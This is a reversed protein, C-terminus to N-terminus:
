SLSTWSRYHLTILGVRGYIGVLLSPWTDFVFCFHFGVAQVYPLAVLLLCFSTSLYVQLFPLSTPINNKHSKIQPGIRYGNFYLLFSVNKCSQLVLLKTTDYCWSLSLLFIQIPGLNHMYISYLDKSLGLVLCAVFFFWVAWSFSFSSFLSYFQQGNIPSFLTWLKTM